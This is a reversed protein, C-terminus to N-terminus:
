TIINNKNNVHKNNDKRLRLSDQTPASKQHFIVETYQKLMMINLQKRNCYKIKQLTIM